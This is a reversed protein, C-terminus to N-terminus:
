FFENALHNGAPDTHVFSHAFKLGMEESSNEFLMLTVLAFSRFRKANM